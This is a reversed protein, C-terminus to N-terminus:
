ELADLCQSDLQKKINDFSDERPSILHFNCGDKKIAIMKGGLHKYDSLQVFIIASEGHRKLENRLSYLRIDKLHTSQMIFGYYKLTVQVVKNDDPMLGLAKANEILRIFASQWNDIGADSLCQITLAACSKTCLSVVGVEETNM